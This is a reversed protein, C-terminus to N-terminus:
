PEVEVADTVSLRLDDLTPGTDPLAKTVNRAQRKADRAAESFMKLFEGATGEGKDKNMQAMVATMMLEMYGRMEKAISPPINGAAVEAALYKTLEVFGNLDTIATVLIRTKLEERIHSPILQRYLEFETPNGGSM